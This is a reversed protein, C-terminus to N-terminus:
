ALPPFHIVYTYLDSLTTDFSAIRKRAQMALESAEERQALNILVPLAYVACEKGIKKLVDLLYNFDLDTDRTLIEQSLLYAIVPGCSVAFTRNIKEDALMACIGNTAEGWYPIHQGRDWLTQIPSPVIVDADMALLAQIAEKRSPANLDGIRDILVSIASKNRPYGIAFIVEAAMRETGGKPGFQIYHILMSLIDDPHSALERIIQERTQEDALAAERLKEELM